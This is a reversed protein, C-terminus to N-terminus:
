NITLNQLIIILLSHFIADSCTIKHSVFLPSQCITQDKFNVGFLGSQRAAANTNLPCARLHAPPAPLESAPGPARGHFAFLQDALPRPHRATALTPSQRAILSESSPDVAAIEKLKTVGADFM